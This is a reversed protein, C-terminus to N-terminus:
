LPARVVSEKLSSTPFAFPAYGQVSIYRSIKQRYKMSEKKAVIRACCAIPLLAYWRKKSHTTGYIMGNSDTM